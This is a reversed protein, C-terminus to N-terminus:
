HVVVACALNGASVTETFIQKGGCSNEQMNYAHMKRHICVHCYPM